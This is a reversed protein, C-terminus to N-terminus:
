LSWNMFCFVDNLMKCCPSIHGSKIVWPELEDQLFLVGPVTHYTSNASNRTVKQAALIAKTHTLIDYLTYYLCM